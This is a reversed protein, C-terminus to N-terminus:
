EVVGYNVWQESRREKLRAAASPFLSALTVCIYRYTSEVIITRSPIGEINSECIYGYSELCIEWCCGCTEVDVTELIRIEIDTVQSQISERNKVPQTRIVESRLSMWSIEFAYTGRVEQDDKEQFCANEILKFIILFSAIQNFHHVESAKITNIKSRYSARLSIWLHMSSGHMLFAGMCFHIAPIFRPFLVYPIKLVFSTDKTDECIM